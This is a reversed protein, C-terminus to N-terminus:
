CELSKLWSEVADQEPLRPLPKTIERPTVVPRRIGNEVDIAVFVPRGYARLDSPIVVEPLRIDFKPSTPPYCYVVYNGQGISEGIVGKIARIGRAQVLPPTQSESVASKLAAAQASSAETAVPVGSPENAQRSTAERPRAPPGFNTTQALQAAAREALQSYTGPETLAM